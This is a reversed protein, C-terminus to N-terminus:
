VDMAGIMSGIVRVILRWIVLGPGAMHGTEAPPLTGKGTAEWVVGPEMLQADPLGAYSAQLAVWAKDIRDLLQQRNM